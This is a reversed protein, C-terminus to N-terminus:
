VAKDGGRGGGGRYASRGSGSGGRGNQGGGSGRGGGAAGRGWGGRGWGGRGGAGEGRGRGRGGYGQGRGSPARGGTAGPSPGRGRGGQTAAAGGGAGGAGYFRGGPGRPHAARPVATAGFTEMNLERQEKIGPRPVPPAMGIKEHVTHSIMDFFDDEFAPKRAAPPTMVGGEAAGDMGLEALLNPKEAEFAVNNATFDFDDNVSVAQADGQPIGPTWARRGPGGRAAGGSGRGGGRGGSPRRGAAAGGVANAWTTPAASPAPAATSTAAATPAPQAQRAPPQQPGRGQRGRGWAAAPPKQVAEQPQHVACAKKLAIRRSVIEQQQSLLLVELQDLVCLFM